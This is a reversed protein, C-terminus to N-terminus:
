NEYEISKLRSLKEELKQKLRFEGMWEIYEDDGGELDEAAMCSIFHESTVHYKKEFPRLRKASLDIAMEIRAIEASIASRVLAFTSAIDEDSQIHIKTAM